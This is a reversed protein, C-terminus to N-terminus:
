FLPHLHFYRSCHSDTGGSHRPNIIHSQPCTLLGAFINWKHIECGNHSACVSDGGDKQRGDTHGASDTDIEIIPDFFHICISIGDEILVTVRHEFLGIGHFGPLNKGNVGLGLFKVLSFGFQHVDGRGQSRLLYFEYTRTSGIRNDKTFFQLTECGRNQANIYWRYKSRSALYGM